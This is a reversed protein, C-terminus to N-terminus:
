QSAMPKPLTIDAQVLKSSGDDSTAQFLSVKTAGSHSTSNYALADLLGVPQGTFHTNLTNLLADESFPKGDATILKVAQVLIAAFDYGQEALGAGADKPDYKSMVQKYQTTQPTSQNIPENFDVYYTGVALPGILADYAPGSETWWSLFKPHYDLADAAKVMCVAPQTNLAMLVVKAGISKLKAAFPSCDTETLSVQLTIAPGPVGISKAYPPIAAIAPVGNSDAEAVLGVPGNNALQRGVSYLAEWLSDYNPDIGFMNPVVPNTFLSGNGALFIPLNYQNAVPRTALIPNTGPGMIAQAHDVKGLTQLASVTQPITEQTDALDWKFTYGNVGGAANISKLYAIAGNDAAAASSAPGSLVSAMGVTIVKSASSASNSGSSGCASTIISLIAAAVIVATMRPRSSGRALNTPRVRNKM